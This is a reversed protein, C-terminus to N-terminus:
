IYLLLLCIRKIFQQYLLKEEICLYYEVYDGDCAMCNAGSNLGVRSEVKLIKKTATSKNEINTKGEKFKMLRHVNFSKAITADGHVKQIM